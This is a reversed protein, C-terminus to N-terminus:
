LAPKSQDPDQHEDLSSVIVAADAVGAIDRAAAQLRRGHDALQTADLKASQGAVAVEVADELMATATAFLHNALDRQDDDM